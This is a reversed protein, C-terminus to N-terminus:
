NIEKTVCGEEGCPEDESNKPAGCLCVTPLLRTDYIYLESTDMSSDGELDGGEWEKHVKEEAEASSNAEVEISFERIVKFEIRYRNM